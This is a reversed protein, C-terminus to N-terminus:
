AKRYVCVRNRGEAKARYLAEDARQILEDRSGADVPYEAVGGSMTLRGLPLGEEGPFPHADIVKCLREAVSRSTELGTEPLLVVFEEGGYRAVIDSGRVRAVIDSQRSGQRLLSAIVVLANDGQPHGNRDNYLKFHDIDFFVLSLPHGYREARNVEEQTREQFYRHNYLGTLGDRVVLEELHRNIRILERNKEDLSMELLREKDKLEANRRELEALLQEKSRRLNYIEMASSVASEIEAPRIPKRLFSTVHAFNIADVVADLDAYGTLLIRMTDSYLECAKALLEVGTMGPMRQDTIIVAADHCDLLRLAEEGGEASHVDYRRRLGRTLLEINEPEDDVVIITPKVASM